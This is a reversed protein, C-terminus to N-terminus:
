LDPTYLPTPFILITSKRGGEGREERRRMTRPTIRESWRIVATKRKEGKEKGRRGRM